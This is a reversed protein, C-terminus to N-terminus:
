ELDDLEDIEESQSSHHEKYSRVLKNLRQLDEEYKLIASMIHIVSNSEGYDNKMYSELSAENFFSDMFTKRLSSKHAIFNVEDPLVRGSFKLLIQEHASMLTEMRERILIRLDESFHNYVNENQHFVEILHTTTRTTKIFQRYVVLRRVTSYVHKKRFPNVVFSAEDRILSLYLDLRRINKWIWRLDKKLIAYQANKRLCARLNKSIENTVLDLLRFFQDNYNPPMFITNLIFSTVVGIITGFVRIVADYVLAEQESLMIVILTVVALGVVNDFDLQHLIAILLVASLGIIPFSNGLLYTMIVAVVGGLSNAWIRAQLTDFSKRVSPQLSNIASIGALASGEPIGLLYPIWISLFVSIGSKLTRAGIKM